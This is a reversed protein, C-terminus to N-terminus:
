TTPLLLRPTMLRPHWRDHCDAAREMGTCTRRHHKTARNAQFHSGSINLRHPRSLLRAPWASLGNRELCACSAEVGVRPRFYSVKTRIRHRRSQRNNDFWDLNEQASKIDVM